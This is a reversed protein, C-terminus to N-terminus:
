PYDGLLKLIIVKSRLYVESESWAIFGCHAPCGYFSRGPNKDTWSTKIVTKRGCRCYVM